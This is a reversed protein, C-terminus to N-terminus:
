NRLRNINRLNMNLTQIHYEEKQCPRFADRKVTPYNKVPNTQKNIM